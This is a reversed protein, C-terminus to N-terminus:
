SKARELEATLLRRLEQQEQLSLELVAREADGPAVTLGAASATEWDLEGVMETVLSWGSDSLTVGAVPDEVVAAQPEPGITPVPVAVVLALVVLALAGIPALVPWRLWSAVGGGPAPEAAIATRVRDSLREWFLPSPEPMELDSAERLVAALSAVERTCADCGALHATRHDALTGEVADVLEDSTLHTTM